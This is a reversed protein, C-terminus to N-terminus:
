NKLMWDLTDEISYKNSRELTSFLLDPNGGLKKIEGSRLLEPNVEVSIGRDSLKECFSIVDRLSHLTGTCINYIQGPQGATLLLFYSEVFDRVDGFERYVDINGLQLTKESKKFHEVIKPIVFNLSQGVGTFNFPRTIVIPLDKLWLRCVLEMAFKSIGYDNSPSPSMSESIREETSNGYVAASSTVIIKSVDPCAHFIAELLNRTGVVNVMYFSEINKSAVFSSAALHVVYEPKFRALEAKLGDKNQLDTSSAFVEMGLSKLYAIFHSGAFGNSGTVYVKM